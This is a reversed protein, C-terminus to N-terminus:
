LRTMTGLRVSTRDLTRRAEKSTFRDSYAGARAPFCHGISLSRLVLRWAATSAREVASKRASVLATRRHPAASRRSTRKTVQSWRVAGSLATSTMRTTVWAPLPTTSPMTVTTATIASARRPWRSDAANRAMAATPARRTVCDSLATIRLDRGSSSSGYTSSVVYANGLPCARPAVAVYPARAITSYASTRSGRRPRRRM